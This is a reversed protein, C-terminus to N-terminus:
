KQGLPKYKQEEHRMENMDFQSLDMVIIDMM